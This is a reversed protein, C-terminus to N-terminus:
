SSSGSHNAGPPPGKPATPPPLNNPPAKAAPRSVGPPIPPAKVGGHLLHQEQVPPAKYGAPATMSLPRALDQLLRCACSPVLRSNSCLSFCFQCDCMELEYKNNISSTCAKFIKDRSINRQTERFSQHVLRPMQFTYNESEKCDIGHCLEHQHDTLKCGTNSCVFPKLNNLINTDNTCVRWLKKM